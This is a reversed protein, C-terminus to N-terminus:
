GPTGVDVATAEFQYSFGGVSRNNVGGQSSKIVLNTFTVTSSNSAHTVDRGTFTGSAILTDLLADPAPGSFRATGTVAPTDTETLEHRSPRLEGELRVPVSNLPNQQWQVELIGKYTDTGDSFSRPKMLQVEAVDAM